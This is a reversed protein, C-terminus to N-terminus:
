SFGQYTWERKQVLQGTQGKVVSKKACINTGNSDHGYSTSFHVDLNDHVGRSTPRTKCLDWIIKDAIASIESKTLVRAAPFDARLDRYLKEYIIHKVKM